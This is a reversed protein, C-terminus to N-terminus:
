LFKKIEIIRKEKKIKYENLKRKFFYKFFIKDVFNLYVLSFSNLTREFKYNKYPPKIDTDFGLFKFLRYLLYILNLIVIHTKKFLLFCKLNTEELPNSKNKFGFNIEFNLNEVGLCNNLKNFFSKPETKLEEYVLFFVRNKKKLYLDIYPSLIINYDFTKYNTIEKCNLLNQKKLFNEDGNTYDEFSIKVRKKLSAHWQSYVSTKQDRLIVIYSPENFIEELLNYRKQFDFHGTYRHAFFGTSQIIVNPVKVNELLKFIKKKGDEVTLDGYIISLFTNYFKYNKKQFSTFVEFKSSDLKEFYNEALFESATKYLGGYIFVKKDM